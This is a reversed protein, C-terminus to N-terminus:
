AGIVPDRPQALDIGARDTHRGHARHDLIDEGPVHLAFARLIDLQHEAAGIGRAECLPGIRVTIPANEPSSIAHQSM